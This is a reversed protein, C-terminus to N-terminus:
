EGIETESAEGAGDDGDKVAVGNFDQVVLVGFRDAEAADVAALLAWGVVRPTQIRFLFPGVRCTNTTLANWSPVCTVFVQFLAYTQEKQATGKGLCGKHTERCCGDMSGRLWPPATL